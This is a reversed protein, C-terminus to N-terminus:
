AKPIGTLRVPLPGVWGWISQENPMLPEQLYAHQDNSIKQYTKFEKPGGIYVCNKRPDAYVYYVVDKKTAKFHIKYPSTSKLLAQRAPTNAPQMKFGAAVLRQEKNASNAEHVTSECGTLLSFAVLLTLVFAKM